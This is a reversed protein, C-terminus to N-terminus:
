LTTVTPTCTRTDDWVVIPNGGVDVWDIGARNNDLGFYINTIPRLRPDCCLPHCPFPGNPNRPDHVLFPDLARLDEPGQAYSECGPEGVQPLPVDEDPDLAAYAAELRQVAQPTLYACYAATAPDARDWVWHDAVPLYEVRGGDRFYRGSRVDLELRGPIEPSSAAEPGCGFLCLVAVAFLGPTSSPHANRHHM